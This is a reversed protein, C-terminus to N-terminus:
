EEEADARRRVVLMLASGAAMIGGFMYFLTTGIGGTSPLQAGSKNVVESTGIGTEEDNEDKSFEIEINGSVKSGTLSTLVGYRGGDDAFGTMTKEVVHGAVIVFEMPACTNYGAPTKTETLVYTGDDLGVFSFSTGDESPVAAIEELSGDALRKELKFEAGELPDKGDTKNVIFKYTFAIVADYDFEDTNDIVNPDNTFKAKAKNMNGEAGFNAKENLTATYEVVINSNSKAATVDKILDAFTLTFAHESSDLVFGTEIETGDVKVVVSDPDFTLSEEMEDSFQLYYGKYDSYKAGLTFMIQFPVPDGIDYDASDQWGSTEGNTDNKDQIKKQFQVNDAKPTISINDAVEVVYLTASDGEPINAYVDRILYYGTPVVESKGSAITKFPDANTDPINAALELIKDLQARDSYQTDNNVGKLEDLIADPVAEGETGKGNKGWKINSLTDSSYDGTFIQFVEYTHGNEPATITYTKNETDGEAAFAVGATALLMMAALLIALFKKM